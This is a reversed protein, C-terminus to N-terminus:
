DAIKEFPQYTKQWFRLCKQGNIRSLGAAKHKKNVARLLTRMQLAVPIYPEFRIKRFEVCMEEARRKTSIDLLYAEQNQPTRDSSNWFCDFPVILLGIFNVTPVAALSVPFAFDVIDRYM